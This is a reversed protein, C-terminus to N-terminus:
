WDDCIDNSDLGIVLKVGNYSPNPEAPLDLLLRVNILKYNVSEDQYSSGWPATDISISNSDKDNSGAHYLFGEYAM